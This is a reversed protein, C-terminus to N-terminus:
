VRLRMVVHDGDREVVAAGLREYFDPIDTGLYMEALGLRAAHWVLSRVLASGVGQRRYAKEVVLAALWPRLHRRKSDDNEILNVTGAPRDDVLAILSLPIADPDAADQLYGEIREVTRGTEPRHKWFAGHIWAAVQPRHYPHEFLHAITLVM